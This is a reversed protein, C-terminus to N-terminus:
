SNVMIYMWKALSGQGPSSPIGEYLTDECIKVLIIRGMQGLLEIMAHEIIDPRQILADRFNMGDRLYDATIRAILVDYMEKGLLNQLNQLVSDAIVNSKADSMMLKGFTTFPM